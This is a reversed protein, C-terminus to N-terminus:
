DDALRHFAADIYRVISHIESDSLVSGWAPMSTGTLGGKIVQTLRGPTMEAMATASTLDRPHPVMFTGIWNKGTGDAAHCFACNAQYLAEGRRVDVDAKDLTPAADHRAFTTAGSYADPPDLFDGTAFGSRPYSVAEAQWTPPTAMRRALDHCSVCSRMYLRRGTRETPTLGKEDTDLPIEGRAFPFAAAFRGHDPWGNEITHYRTNPAKHVMFEERVFDVVAAIEADTLLSAFPKMATGSRGNRVVDLMTERPLSEATVSTFDRPVPVLMQAALTRADGSYGHCFYCRFNYIERGDPRDAGVGFGASVAGLAVTAVVSRFRVNLSM